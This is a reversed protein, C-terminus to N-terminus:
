SQRGSVDGDGFPLSELLTYISGGPTLRSEMLQM